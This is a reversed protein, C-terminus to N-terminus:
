KTSQARNAEIVEDLHKITKDKSELQDVLYQMSRRLVEIDHINNIQRRYQEYKGTEKQTASLQLLAECLSLPIGNMECYFREKAQDSADFKIIDEYREASLLWAHVNNYRNM